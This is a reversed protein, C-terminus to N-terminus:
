KIKPARFIFAEKVEDGRREARSLNKELETAVYFNYSLSSYRDKRASRKETLKVLGGSEDHDLGIMESVLLTTNVYPLLLVAKDEPSFSAYGKIEKLKEEADFENELLRIRGARFGERLLLACDSNFKAGATIGWIAKKADRSTCRAALDANNYCTLPPYIEGTEADSIERVLADYIGLGMNRCDLAIYDCEFDEFYKRILLAVDETHAGELNETYVINNIFRGSKTPLAQNIFISTADNRTRTSAMLAIDASLIRKESPKKPPIRLASASPFREQLKRPLMPMELKRARSIPELQFFSGETDGFFEADM